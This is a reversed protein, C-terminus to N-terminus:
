VADIARGFVARRTQRLRRTIHENEWMTPPESGPPRDYRRSTRSPSTTGTRIERETGNARSGYLWVERISPYAAVLEEIYRTEVENLMALADCTEGRITSMCYDGEEVVPVGSARARWAGRTRWIRISM